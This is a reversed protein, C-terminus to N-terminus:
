GPSAFDALVLKGSARAEELAVKLGARWAVAM